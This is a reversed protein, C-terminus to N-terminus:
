LGLPMRKERDQQEALLVRVTALARRHRRLATRQSVALATSIDEWKLFSLYRMELLARSQASPVRAILQGVTARTRAIARQLQEIERQLEEVRLATRGTADSVDTGRVEGSPFSSPLGTRVTRLQVLKYWLTEELRGARMLWREAQKPADEESVANM